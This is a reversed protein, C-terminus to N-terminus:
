GFQTQLDGLALDGGSVWEGDQYADVATWSAPAFTNAGFRFFKIPESFNVRATRGDLTEVLRGDVTVTVVGAGFVTMPQFGTLRASVNEFRRETLRGAGLLANMGNLAAIRTRWFPTTERAQGFQPNGGKAYSESWLYQAVSSSAESELRAATWSPGLGQWTKMTAGDYGDAVGYVSTGATPLRLHWTYWLEGEAPAVEAHDRFEVTVDAYQLGQLPVGPMNPWALGPIAWVADVRTSELHFFRGLGPKAASVARAVKQFAGPWIRYNWENDDVSNPAGPTSRARDLFQMLGFAFDGAANSPLESVAVRHAVPTAGSAFPGSKLAVQPMPIAVPPDVPAPPPQPVATRCAIGPDARFRTPVTPTGDPCLDPSVAVAAPTAAPADSPVPAVPASCGVFIVALAFALRGMRSAERGRAARSDSNGASVRLRKHVWNARHRAVQLVLAATVLAM